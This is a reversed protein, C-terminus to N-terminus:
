IIYEGTIVCRDLISKKAKEDALQRYVMASTGEKATMNKSLELAAKLGYRKKSAIAAQIHGVTSITKAVRRGELKWVCVVPSRKGTSMSGIEELSTYM